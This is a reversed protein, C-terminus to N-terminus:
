GRIPASLASKQKTDPWDTEEEVERKEVFAISVLFVAVSFPQGGSITSKGLSFDANDAGM